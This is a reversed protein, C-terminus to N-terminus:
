ALTGEAIMWHAIGVAAAIDEEKKPCLELNFRENVAGVYPKVGDVKRSKVGLLPIWKSPNVKTVPREVRCAAMEVLSNLTGHVYLARVGKRNGLGPLYECGIRDVNWKSAYRVVENLFIEWRRFNKADPLKLKGYELLQGAHDMVAFGSTTGPDIGLILGSRPM